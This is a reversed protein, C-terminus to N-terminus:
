SPWVPRQPAKMFAVAIAALAYAASAFVAIAMGLSLYASIGGVIAPFM